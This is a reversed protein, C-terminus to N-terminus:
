KIEIFDVVEEIKIRYFSDTDKRKNLTLEYLKTGKLVFVRDRFKEVISYYLERALSFVQDRGDTEGPKHPFLDPLLGEGDWFINEKNAWEYLTILEDFNNAVYHYREKWINRIAKLFDESTFADKYIDISNGLRKELVIDGYKSYDKKIDRFVEIFYHWDSQLGISEFEPDPVKNNDKIM